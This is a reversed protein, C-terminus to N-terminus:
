LFLCGILFGLELMKIHLNGACKYVFNTM